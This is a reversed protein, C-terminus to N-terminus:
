GGVRKLLAEARQALIWAADVYGMESLMQANGSCEDMRTVYEPSPDCDAACGGDFLDPRVDADTPNDDRKRPDAYTGDPKVKVTRFPSEGAHSPDIVDEANQIDAMLRATGPHITGLEDTYKNM